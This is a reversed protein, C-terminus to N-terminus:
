NLYNFLILTETLHQRSIHNWTKPLQMKLISALLKKPKMKFKKDKLTKSLLIIASTICDEQIDHRGVKQETERKQM